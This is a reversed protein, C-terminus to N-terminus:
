GEPEKEIFSTKSPKLQGSRISVVAGGVGKPKGQSILDLDGATLM